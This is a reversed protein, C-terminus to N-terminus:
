IIQCLDMCKQIQLQTSTNYQICMRECMDYNAIFNYKYQPLYWYLGLNSVMGIPYPGPCYGDNM